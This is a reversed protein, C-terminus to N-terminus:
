DIGYSRTGKNQKKFREEMIRKFRPEENRIAKRLFGDKGRSNHYEQYLTYETLQVLDWVGIPKTHSRQIGETLTRQMLGTDVPAMNAADTGIRVSAGHALDDADKQSGADELGKLASELGFIVKGHRASRVLSRRAM